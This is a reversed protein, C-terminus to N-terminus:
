LYEMRKDHSELMFFVHSRILGRQYDFIKACVM